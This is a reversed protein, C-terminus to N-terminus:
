VLSWPVPANVFDVWAGKLQSRVEEYERARWGILAGGYQIVEADTVGDLLTELLGPMVAVDNLVGLLGQLGKLQLTFAEMERRDFLPHFFETAYRLKKCEIRLEHLQVEPLEMINAGKQTVKFHRRDMMKVAYSRIPKGLGVRADATMEEQFWGHNDIWQDFRELFTKYRDDDMMARMQEYARDRHEIAIALLRHEGEELPIKGAMPGLGEDILVDLDRAPGMASAAWKMEEGMPDTIHRPIAKRFLSIASRMRRYAVRAQHVGEIDERSYAIPSWARMYDFNHRLIVGFAENVSQDETVPSGKSVSPLAM